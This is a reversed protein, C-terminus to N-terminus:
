GILSRQRPSAAAALRLAILVRLRDFGDVCRSTWGDAGAASAGAPVEVIAHGALLLRATIEAEIEFRNSRLELDRAIDGRMVRARPTVDTLASGYLANTLWALARNGSRSLVPLAGGPTLFRSGHVVGARGDLIPQVLAALEAAELDRGPERITAITGNSLKLGIRVAHGQGCRIPLPTISVRPDRTRRDIVARTDDTSGDNVVILELDLPLPLTLLRDLTAGITRGENYVPVIISLLSSM